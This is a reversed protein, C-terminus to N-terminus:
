RTSTQFRVTKEFRRVDTGPYNAKEFDTLDIRQEVEALADKAQIGDPHDALVDFVAYLLEGRRQKDLDPM